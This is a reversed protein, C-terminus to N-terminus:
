FFILHMNVQQQVGKGNPLDFMALSFGPFSQIGFSRLVTALKESTVEKIDYEWVTRDGRSASHITARM